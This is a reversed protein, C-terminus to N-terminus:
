LAYLCRRTQARTWRSTPPVYYNSRPPRCPHSADDVLLIMDESFKETKTSISTSGQGLTGSRRTWICAEESALQTAAPRFPGRVRIGDVMPTLLRGFQRDHNSSFWRVQKLFSDRETETGFPLGVRQTREFDGTDILRFREQIVDLIDLSIHALDQNEYLRDTFPM